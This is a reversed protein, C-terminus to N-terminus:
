DVYTFTGTTLANTRTAVVTTRQAAVPLHAPNILGIVLLSFTSTTSAVGSERRVPIGADDNIYGALVRRPDGAEGAAADFPVYLGSAIEAVAVGSPIIGEGYKSGAISHHTGSTFASLDLTGPRGEHAGLKGARWRTDTGGTAQSDISFDTM